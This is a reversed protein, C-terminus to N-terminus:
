FTNHPINNNGKYYRFPKSGKAVLILPPHEGWLLKEKPGIPLNDPCRTYDKM